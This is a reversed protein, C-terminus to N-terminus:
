TREGTREDTQGVTRGDAGAGSDGWGSTTAAGSGRGRDGMQKATGDDKGGEAM